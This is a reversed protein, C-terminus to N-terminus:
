DIREAIGTNPLYVIKIVDGEELGLDYLRVRLIEGTGLVEIVIDRVEESSPNDNDPSVIKGVLTECEQKGYMSLDEVLSITSGVCAWLIIACICIYALIDMIFKHGAYFNRVRESSIEATVDGKVKGVFITIIDIVTKVVNRKTFFNIVFLLVTMYCFFLQIFLEGVLQNM